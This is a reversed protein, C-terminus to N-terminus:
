SGGRTGLYAAAVLGAIMSGVALLANRNSLWATALKTEIAAIRHIATEYVDKRVYEARLEHRLDRLETEHRDIDRARDCSVDDSM